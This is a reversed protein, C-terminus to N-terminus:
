LFYYKRYAFTAVFTSYGTNDSSLTVPLLSLPYAEDLLFTSTITNHSNALLTSIYIKGVYDFYVNSYEVYDDNYGGKNIINDMWGELFRREAWDQYIIFSMTIEDFEHQVPIKRKTGWLSEPQGADYTALARQPLNVESPYTSFNGFPTFFDVMYKSALQVGGKSLVNARFSDISNSIFNNPTQPEAM